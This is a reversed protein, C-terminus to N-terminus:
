QKQSCKEEEEALFSDADVSTFPQAGARARIINVDALARSWDGAARAAAEARILYVQGLRVLPFDNDM